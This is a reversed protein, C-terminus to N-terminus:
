FGAMNLKERTKSIDASNKGETPAGLVPSAKQLLQAVAGKSNKMGSLMDGKRSSPERFEELREVARPKRRSFFELLWWAGAAVAGFIAVQMILANSMLSTALIATM